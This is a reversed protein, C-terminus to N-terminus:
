QVGDMILWMMAILGSMLAWSKIIGGDLITSSNSSDVLSNFVLWDIGCFVGSLSFAMCSCTRVGLSETLMVFMSCRVVLFPNACDSFIVALAECNPGQDYGPTPAMTAWGSFGVMSWEPIGSASGAEISFLAEVCFLDEFLSRV